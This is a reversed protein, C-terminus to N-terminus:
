SPEPAAAVAPFISFIWYVIQSPSPVLISELASWPLENVNVNPLPSTILPNSWPRTPIRTPPTRQSVIGGARAYPTAPACAEVAVLM